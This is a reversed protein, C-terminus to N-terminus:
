NVREYVDQTNDSNAPRLTFSSGDRTVRYERNNIQLAGDYYSGSPDFDDGSSSTWISGDAFVNVFPYQAGRSVASWNGVLWKPVSSSPLQSASGGGTSATEKHRNNRSALVGALIIGGIIGGAVAAGAASGGGSRGYAFEARCGRDVWIGRNDYGWSSGEQCDRLSLKNVLRVNNGTDVRCYNYDGNTSECTIRNDQAFARQVGTSTILLGTLVICSLFRFPKKM